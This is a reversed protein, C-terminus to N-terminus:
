SVINRTDIGLCKVLCKNSYSKSWHYENTATTEYGNVEVLTKFTRPIRNSQSEEIINNEPFMERLIGDVNSIDIDPLKEEVVLEPLTVVVPVSSTFDGFDDDDDDEEEDVTQELGIVNQNIVTDDVVRPFDDFNAFQNFDAEFEVVQPEAAESNQWKSSTKSEIPKISQGAASTFDSFDDFDGDEGDNAAAEKQVCQDSLEPHPIEDEIMEGKFDCNDGGVKADTADEPHDLKTEHGVENEVFDGFEDEEAPIITEQFETVVGDSTQQQQEENVVVVDDVPLQEHVHEEQPSTEFSVNDGEKIIEESFQQNNIDGNIDTASPSINFNVDLILSPPNDVDKDNSEEDEEEELEISIGAAPISLSEETSISELQQEGQIETINNSTITTATDDVEEKPGNLLDHISPSTTTAKAVQENNAFESVEEKELRQEIPVEVEDGIHNVKVGEGDVILAAPSPKVEKRM